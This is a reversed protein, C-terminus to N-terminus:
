QSQWAGSCRGGMGGSSNWSGGGSWARGSRAVTGRWQVTVGQGGGGGSAILQGTGDVSGALAGAADGSFAGNIKGAAATLSFKGGTSAQFSTCKGSWSGTLSFTATAASAPKAPDAPTAGALAKRREAICARIQDGGLLVETALTRYKEINEQIKKESKRLDALEKNATELERELKRLKEVEPNLRDREAKLRELEMQAQKFEGALQGKTALLVSRRADMGARDGQAANREAGSAYDNAALRRDIEAIRQDLLDIGPEGGTGAHLALRKAQIRGLTGEWDRIQSDLSGAGRAAMRAEVIKAELDRIERQKSRILDRADALATSQQNLPNRNDNYNFATIAAVYTQEAKNLTAEDMKAVSACFGGIDNILTDLLQAGAPRAALLVVMLIGISLRRVM